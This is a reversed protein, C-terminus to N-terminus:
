NVLVESSQGASELILIFVKEGKRRYGLLCLRTNNLSHDNSESECATSKVKEKLNETIVPCNLYKGKEPLSAFSVLGACSHHVDAPQAMRYWDWKRYPFAEPPLRPPAPGQRRIEQCSHFGLDPCNFVRTRPKVRFPHHFHFTMLIQKDYYNHHHASPCRHRPHGHRCWSAKDRGCNELFYASKRARQLRGEELRNSTHDELSESAGILGCLRGILEQKSEIFGSDTETIHMQFFNVLCYYSDFNFSLLLFQFLFLFSPFFPPLPLSPLFSISLGRSSPFHTGAAKEICLLCETFM